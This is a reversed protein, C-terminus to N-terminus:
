KLAENIDLKCLPCTANKKVWKIICKKHFFHCCPLYIVIDNNIFDELCITCRKHEDNLKNIEIFKNEQLRNLLKKKIPEINGINGIMSLEHDMSFSADRSLIITNRENGNSRDNDDLEHISELYRNNPIIEIRANNLEDSYRNPIIEIRANNLEGMNRYRYRYIPLMLDLRAYNFLESRNGIEEEEIKKEEESELSIDIDRNLGERNNIIHNGLNFFTDKKDELNENYNPRRYRNNIVDNNINVNNNNENLFLNRENFNSNNKPIYNNNNERNKEFPIIQNNKRNENLILNKINKEINKM